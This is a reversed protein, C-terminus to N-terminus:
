LDTTKFILLDQNFNGNILILNTAILALFIIILCFELILIQHFFSLILLVFPLIDFFKTVIKFCAQPFYNHIFSLFILFNIRLFFGIGILIIGWLLGALNSFLFFAIILSLTQTNEKWASTIEKLFVYEYKKFGLLSLIKLDRSNQLYQFSRDINQFVIILILFIIRYIWIENPLLLKFKILLLGEIIPILILPPILSLLSFLNNQKESFYRQREKFYFWCTILAKKM